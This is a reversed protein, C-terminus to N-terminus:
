NDLITFLTHLKEIDLSEARAKDDIKIKKLAELIKDKQYFLQLNNVITKRKAAFSVKLFKNFKKDFPKGNKVLRIVESEVDPAPSFNNKSVSLLKKINCYYSVAATFSNYQKTNPKATIREVMEKQLMCIFNNVHNSELFMGLVLSSISYPLNSILIPNNYKETIEDFNENLVDNNIVTVTPYKNKIFESFRKDLEIATLPKNLRTLFETIAGLGPGIEVVQDYDKEAAFNAIQEAIQENILFNQGMKKSPNIGKEKLYNNTETVNM